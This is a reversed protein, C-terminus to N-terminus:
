NQILNQWIERRWCVGNILSIQATRTRIFLKQTKQSKQTGGKFAAQLEQVRKLARSRGCAKQVAAGSGKFMIELALWVFQICRHGERNRCTGRLIHGYRPSHSDHQHSSKM